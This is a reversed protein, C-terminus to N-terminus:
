AKVLVLFLPGCTDLHQFRTGTLFGQDVQPGFIRWAHSLVFLHVMKDPFLSCDLAVRRAANPVIARSTDLGCLLFARDTAKKGM